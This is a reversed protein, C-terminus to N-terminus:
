NNNNMILWSIAAITATNALVTIWFVLRFIRKHTKHRLWGQALLAGPWGGLLALLHLRAEPVRWRGRQAQRKDWAYLGFCALSCALVWGGFYGLWAPWDLM